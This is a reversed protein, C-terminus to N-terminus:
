SNINKLKDSYTKLLMEKIIKNKKSILSPDKKIINTATKRALQIIKEDMVLNAIKFKLFGSQKLGFFEGPGRLRLDEDAVEFGDNTKELVKLRNLSTDTTNRRVLICYSQDAGRGVRGRLQHLQTLGFREANEILMVTANPIDIGVEIVTTSVLINIRKKAFQSIIDEKETSTMKGHILGVELNSFVKNKLKIHAQIAAELDLKESEEILPFVIMCQRGEICEKKIFDYISQMRQPLVVKTRVPIRNSPLENIISLDMDGHYTISLTRPIPTATMSLSHPNKGKQILLARQKVGFRHQEDVIVLGLQKFKVDQQILAHTGIIIPLKGNSLGKLILNRDNKKMKGILLGCPINNKELETKFSFYHQRALIETPAMIATQVNNGIAIASTLIAVITKGCGVDGQILRNMQSDKKLDFHIEKIVNKQANTLEFKLNDIVTNFYPGIDKLPKTKNTQFKEKKFILLIQLLYHEDFKLRRIADSLNKKNTSFHINKLAEELSVLNNKKLFSKSLYDNIVVPSDLVQQIIKRLFRQQIGTSKLDQNLPYLPIIKGSQFSGAESELFDIEPHTISYGQYWEVKGHIALNLGVKLKQKIFHISNFWTLTLFGTGDTVLVQFLKGKRIPKEGFSEIRAVLSVTQNKQFHKIQTVNTRDLYRRPFTYLLDKISDIGSQSFSVSRQEGVGELISIPDTLIL